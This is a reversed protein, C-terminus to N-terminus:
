TTPLVRYNWRPLVADRVFRLAKKAEEAVKRGKLYVKDVIDVVVKLGTKTQAKAMLEQVLAVSHFIVGRCVRSLHPFLRHEIPNYKSAYPPYHAVRVELGLRNVLAELDAKFLYTSASNSGGGDCLLLLSEAQSYQKRGFRRWWDALGDCAFESTDFSTGLHVYGRNRKLDYIGHPIAVGEAFSPFDHDFTRITERTFSSGSRYFNGILERKKTDISLIPNPSDLYQEKIRAINEFQANRDAHEGMSEAKQAQRRHYGLEDLLQEVVHVCVPTGREALRDAIEQRTLNTWIVTEEMPSGATFDRLVARVQDVLEPTSEIM